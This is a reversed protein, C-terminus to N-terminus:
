LLCIRTTHDSARGAILIATTKICGGNLAYIHDMSSVCKFLKIVLVGAIWPQLTGPTNFSTEVHLDFQGYGGGGVCVCVSKKYHLTYM